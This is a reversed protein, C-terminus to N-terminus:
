SNHLLKTFHLFCKGTHLIGLKSLMQGRAILTFAVALWLAFLRQFNELFFKPAGRSVPLLKQTPKNLGGDSWLHRTVAELPSCIRGRLWCVLSKWNDRPTAKLANNRCFREDGNVAAENLRAPLRPQKGVTVPVCVKM